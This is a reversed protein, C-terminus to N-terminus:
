RVFDFALLTSGGAGEMVHLTGGVGAYRGTGGTIAFTLGRFGFLAGDIVIKGKGNIRITGTCSFSRIGLECRVADRGVVRNTGPQFAIEEFHFFDGPSDGAPDLDVGAGRVERTRVVLDARSAAAQASPGASSSVPWGVRTAGSEASAGGAMAFAGGGVVSAAAVVIAAIRSRHVMGNRMM